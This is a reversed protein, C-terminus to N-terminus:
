TGKKERLASPVKHRRPDDMASSSSGTSPTSRGVHRSTARRQVDGSAACSGCEKRARTALGHWPQSAAGAAANTSSDVCRTTRTHVSQALTSRARVAGCCSTLVDHAVSARAAVSRSRSEPGPSASAAARRSVSRRAYAASNFESPAVFFSLSSARRRSCSASSTSTAAAPAPPPTPPSSSSPSSPSSPPAPAPAPAPPPPSDSSGANATGGDSNGRTM